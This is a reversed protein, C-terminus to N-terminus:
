WHDDFDVCLLPCEGLIRLRMQCEEESWDLLMPFEEAEATKAAKPPTKAKSMNNFSHSVPLSSFPTHFSVQRSRSAFCLRLFLGSVFGFCVRCLGVCVSVFGFLAATSHLSAIRPVTERTGSVM